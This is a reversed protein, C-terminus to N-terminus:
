KWWEVGDRFLSFHMFDVGLAANFWLRVRRLGAHQGNCWAATASYVAIKRNYENRDLGIKKQQIMGFYAVPVAASTFHSSTAKTGEIVHNRVIKNLFVSNPRPSKSRCYFMFNRM